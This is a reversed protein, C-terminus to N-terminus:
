EPEAMRGSHGVFSQSALGAPLMWSLRGLPRGLALHSSYVKPRAQDWRPISDASSDSM